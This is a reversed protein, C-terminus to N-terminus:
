SLQLAKATHMALGVHIALGVTQAGGCWHDITYECACDLSGMLQCAYAESVM